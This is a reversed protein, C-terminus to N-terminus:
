SLQDAHMCSTSFFLSGRVDIPVVTLANNYLTVWQSAIVAMFQPLEPGHQYIKSYCQYLQVSVLMTNHPVEMDVGKLVHNAKKGKGYKKYVGKVDVALDSSDAM